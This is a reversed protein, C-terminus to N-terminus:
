SSFLSPCLFISSKTDEPPGHKTRCGAGSPSAAPAAAPHPTRRGTSRASGRVAPCPARGGGWGPSGGRGEGPGTCAGAGDALHGSAAWAGQVPQDGSRIPIRLNAVCGMGGGGGSEWFGGVKGGGGGASVSGVQDAM